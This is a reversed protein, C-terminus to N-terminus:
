LRPCRPRAPTNDLIPQIWSLNDIIRSGATYHASDNSSGWTTVGALVRAGDINWYLSGGSDGPASGIVGSTSWSSAGWTFAPSPLSITGQRKIGFDTGNWSTPGYGSLTVSAAKLPDKGSVSLPVATVDAPHFGCELQLIALDATPSQWKAVVEYPAVEVVPADGVQVYITGPGTWDVVHKNTIVMDPRILTSSGRSGPSGHFRVLMTSLPGSPAVLPGHLEQDTTDLGSEDLDTCGTGALATLTALSLLTRAFTRM